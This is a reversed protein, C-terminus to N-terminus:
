EIPRSWGAAMLDHASANDGLEPDAAAAPKPTKAAPPIAPAAWAQSFDPPPVPTTTKSKDELPTQFHPRAKMFARAAAAVGTAEGGAISVKEISTGDEALEIQASTAMLAAADLVAEPRCGAERLQEALELRVIRATLTRERQLLTQERQHLETEDM